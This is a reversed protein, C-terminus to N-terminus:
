FNTYESCSIWLFCLKEAFYYYFLWLYIIMVQPNIFTQKIRVEMTILPIFVLSQDDSGKQHKFFLVLQNSWQGINVRNLVCTRISKLYILSSFSWGSLLSIPFSTVKEKQEKGPWVAFATPALFRKCLLSGLFLNRTRGTNLLAFSHFSYAWSYVRSWCYWGVWQSAPWHHSPLSKVSDIM